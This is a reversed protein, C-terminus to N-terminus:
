YLKMPEQVGAEFVADTEKSVVIKFKELDIKPYGAVGLWFGTWVSGLATKYVGKQDLLRTQAVQFENRGAEVIQMVKLDMSPDYKQSNEQIFQFIAKSGGDGYRASLETEMLEKLKQSYREPIQAVERVKLSTQGQINKNNEWTTQIAVETRNGYNAANVYAFAATVGLIVLLSFVIATMGIMVTKM